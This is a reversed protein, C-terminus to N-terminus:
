RTNGSWGMKTRLIKFYNAEPLNILKAVHKARRIIVRSKNNIKLNIQGDVSLVMNSNNDRFSLKIIEEPMLVIPRASLSHTCIPTITISDMSPHIIPGGASLSYATSGTPTSLIVGDGEFSNVYHNSVELKVKLMRATNGHDLVIDNLAWLTKINGNFDVIDVQLIM